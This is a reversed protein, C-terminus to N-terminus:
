NLEALYHGDPLHVHAIRWAVPLDTDLQLVVCDLLLVPTGSAIGLLDAIDAPPAGISVREQARGLLM